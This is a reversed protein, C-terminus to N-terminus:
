VDRLLVAICECKACVYYPGGRVLVDVSRMFVVGCLKDCIMVHSM